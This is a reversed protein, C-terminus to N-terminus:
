GPRSGVIAQVKLRIEDAQEWRIDNNVKWQTWRPTFCLEWIGNERHAHIVIMQHRTAFAQNSDSALEEVRCSVIADGPIRYCEKDGEFLIERRSPDIRMFGIDDATDLITRGWNKRPVIEVFMADPSEWDMWREPRSKMARRALTRLRRNGLVSPNRLGMVGTMIAVVPGLVVCTIGLVQRATSIPGSAGKDDPILIILGGLFAAVGGLLGAIIVLVALNGMIINSRTLIRGEYGPFVPKIQATVVAPMPPAAVTTAAPSAANRGTSAFSALDTFRPSLAVAEANTLEVHDVVMTGRPSDFRSSGKAGQMRGGKIEKISFYAPCSSNGSVASACYDVAAAAYPMGQLIPVVRAELINQYHGAHFVAALEPGTGGLFAVVDQQMWDRCRECYIRKTQVFGFATAAMLVFAFETCFLLWNEITKGSVGRRIPTPADESDDSNPQTSKSKTGERRAKVLDTNADHVEDIAMRLQIYRPLLDVRTMFHTGFASVMGAHFYGLYLAAGALLGCFVAVKRSRCHGARVALYVMGGVGAGALMPLILVYYEGMEYLWNMFWALGGCVVLALLFLPSFRAWDVGGTNRYQARSPQQVGNM